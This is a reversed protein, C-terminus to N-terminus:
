KAETDAWFAYPLLAVVLKGAAVTGRAETAIVLAMADPAPPANATPESMVIVRLAAMLGSKETLVAYTVELVDSQSNKEPVLTHGILKSEIAMPALLVTIVRVPEEAVPQAAGTMPLEVTVRDGRAPTV